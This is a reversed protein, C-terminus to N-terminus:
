LRPIIYTSVEAKQLASLSVWAPVDFPASGAQKVFFLMRSMNPWVEGQPIIGIM